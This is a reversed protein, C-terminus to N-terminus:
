AVGTQSTVQAPSEEAARRRWHPRRERAAQVKELAIKQNAKVWAAPDRDYEALVDEGWANLIDEPPPFLGANIMRWLRALSFEYRALVQKKRLWKRHGPRTANGPASQAPTTTSIM